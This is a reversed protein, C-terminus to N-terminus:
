FPEIYGNLFFCLPTFVNASKVLRRNKEDFIHAKRSIRMVKCCNIFIYIYKYM